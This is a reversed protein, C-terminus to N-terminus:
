SLLGPFHAPLYKGRPVLLYPLYTSMQITHDIKRKKMLVEIIKLGCLDINEHDTKVM